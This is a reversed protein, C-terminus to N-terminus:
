APVRLVNLARLGISEIRRLEGAPVELWRGGIAVAARGRGRAGLLAEGMTPHEIGVIEVGDGVSVFRLVHSM